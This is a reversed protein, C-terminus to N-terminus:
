RVSACRAQAAVQRAPHALVAAEVLDLDVGDAVDDADVV